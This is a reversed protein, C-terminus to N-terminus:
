TRKAGALAPALDPNTEFALPVVAEAGTATEPVPTVAPAGVPVNVADGVDSGAPPPLTLSVQVDVFAEEALMSWPTPVSGVDPDVVTVTVVVFVNVSVSVLAFPVLVYVAVAVTAAVGAGVPERVALGVERGVPPPLTVSVHFAFLVVVAFISWPMPVTEAAPPLWCTLTVDVRVYVSVSVFETPVFVYLAVTVTAAVTPAGVPVRVAFGAESGTPPPFTTSLHVEAFAVVAAISWPIPVTVSLPDWVTATAEVDVNVILKEFADPVREYEAVTLTSVETASSGARPFSM